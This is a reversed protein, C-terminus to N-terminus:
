FPVIPLLCLVDGPIAMAVIPKSWQAFCRAAICSPLRYPRAQNKQNRRTGWKECWGKGRLIPSDIVTAIEFYGDRE